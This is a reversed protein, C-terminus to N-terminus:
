LRRRREELCSLFPQNIPLRPRTVPGFSALPFLRVREPLLPSASGSARKPEPFSDGASGM